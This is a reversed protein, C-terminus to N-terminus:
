GGRFFPQEFLTSQSRANNKGDALLSRFSEATGPAHGEYHNTAYAFVKSRPLLEKSIFETWGLIAERRNVIIRDWAKNRQEMKRGEGVWRIYVFDSTVLDSSRDHLTSKELWGDDGFALSVNHNRITNIFQPSIWEEPVSLAFRYVHSLNKLLPLLRDLFYDCSGFLKIDRSSFKFLMPGLKEKLGDMVRFFDAMDKSCDLLAAEHTIKRPMKVAFVFEKPTQSYWNKVTSTAPPGYLTSMLEVTNFRSAYYGLYDRTPLKRPFFTRSWGAATFGSTGIYLNETM